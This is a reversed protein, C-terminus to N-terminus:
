SPQPYFIVKKLPQCNFKLSNSPQCNVGNLGKLLLIIEGSVKKLPQCNFKLSNPPQCNVGNLGKLLLIIEGSPTVPNFGLM